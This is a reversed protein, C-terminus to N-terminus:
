DIIKFFIQKTFEYDILIGDSNPHGELCLSVSTVYGEGDNNESLYKVVSPHPNNISNCGRIWEPLNNREIDDKNVLYLTPLELIQSPAVTKQCTSKYLLILVPFIIIAAAIKPFILYGASNIGMIELADIQETIRM